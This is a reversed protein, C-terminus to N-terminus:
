RGALRERLARVLPEVDRMKRIYGAYGTWDPEAHSHYQWSTVNAPLLTRLQEETIGLLEALRKGYIQFSLGTEATSSEPLINFVARLSSGLQGKYSLSSRTTQGTLVGDFASVVARLLEGVGNSDAISELEDRTRNRARKRADRTARSREVDTPDILFVRAVYEGGDATRM